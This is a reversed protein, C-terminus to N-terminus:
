HRGKAEERRRYAEAEEDGLMLRVGEVEDDLTTPEGGRGVKEYLTKVRSEERQLWILLPDKESAWVTYSQEPKGDPGLLTLTGTHADYKYPFETNSFLEGNRHLRFIANGKYRLQVEYYYDESHAVETQNPHDERISRWDGFVSDPHILESRDPHYELSNRGQGGSASGAAKSDTAASSSQQQARQKGIEALQNLVTRVEAEREEPGAAGRQELNVNVKSVAIGIQIGGQPFGVGNLSKSNSDYTLGYDPALAILVQETNMASFDLQEVVPESVEKPPPPPAQEPAPPTQERTMSELMFRVAEMPEQIGPETGTRVLMEARSALDEPTGLATGQEWVLMNKGEDYLIGYEPAIQMVAQIYEESAEGTPPLEIARPMQGAEGAALLPAKEGVPQSQGAGNMAADQSAENQQEAKNCGAVSFGIILLGALLVRYM